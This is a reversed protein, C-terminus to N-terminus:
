NLIKLVKSIVSSRSNLKYIYSIIKIYKMIFQSKKESICKEACKINIFIKNLNQIIKLIYQQISKHTKEENYYMNLDKIEINNVFVRVINLIFDELLQM